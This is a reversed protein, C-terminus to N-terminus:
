FFGDSGLKRAHQKTHKSDTGVDVRRDDRVHKKSSCRRVEDDGGGATAEVAWVGGAGVGAARSTEYLKEKQLM